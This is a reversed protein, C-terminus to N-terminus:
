RMVAPGNLIKYAKLILLNKQTLGANKAHNLIPSTTKFFVKSLLFDGLDLGPMFQATLAVKM